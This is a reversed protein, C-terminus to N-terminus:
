QKIIKYVNTSQADEIKLVYVGKPYDSLDMVVTTNNVKEQKIIRGELTTLTFNAEQTPANKLSVTILGPTPNPYLNIEFDDVMVSTGTSIGCSSKTQVPSFRNTTTSDGLQGTQNEGWGWITSNNKVALVHSLGAAVENIGVFNNILTPTKVITATSGIGLQGASNVGWAWVTSDSKLALSYYSGAQVKLISSINLVLNPTTRFQVVLSDGLEGHSNEGWSWVTGDNKVALSHSQGAAVAVIGNLGIVMVPTTTNIQTGNGLQGAENKGWAWVTGDSKLALTHYVGAAVSVVNTLSIIQAPSHRNVMDGLGLQGYENKGWAWLTSDNKIALSTSFGATVSVVNSLTSIQEPSYRTLTDGLGLQGWINGGYSWITGDNKLALSYALGAAVTVIGTFGDIPTPMTTLTYSSDPYFLRGTAEVTGDDCVMLSHAGIGSVTQTFARQVGVYLLFFLTTTWIVVFVTKNKTNVSKKM